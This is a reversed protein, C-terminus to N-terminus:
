RPGTNLAETGAALEVVEATIQEQRLARERESLTALKTEINTKAAAMVTMRAENEAAFGCTAAECLQAYVYEAALRELLVAPALTTIPRESGLPRAFYRFDVPLLSHRAIEIVRSSTARAYVLDVRAISEDAIREYLAEVIRNALSPIAGAQTAMAASWAVPMQRENAIASGRTGIIFNVTREAEPMVAALIRENFTGAFGQEACFLILGRGRARSPTSVTWESPVLALAQGIARSVVASYAEIGALLSRGQQARSAAIGRMAIVIGKLQGVSDIQTRVDALRGAM